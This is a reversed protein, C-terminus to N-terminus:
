KLVGSKNLKPDKDKPRVLLTRLTNTGKFHLQIGKAKCVKKVKEGIGQIYPVVMTINRNNNNTNNNNTSSSSNNNQQSGLQPISM